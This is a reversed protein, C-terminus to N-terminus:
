HHSMGEKINIPINQGNTIIIFNYTNYIYSLVNDLVLKTEGEKAKFCATMHFYKSNFPNPICASVIVTKSSITDVTVGTTVMGNESALSDQINPM